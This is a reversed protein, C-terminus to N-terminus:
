ANFPICYWGRAINHSIFPRYLCLRSYSLFFAGNLYTGNRWHDREVNDSGEMIRVRGRRGRLKTLM